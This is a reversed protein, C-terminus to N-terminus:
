GWTAAPGRGVPPAIVVPLGDRRVPGPVHSRTRAVTLLFNAHVPEQHKRKAEAGDGARFAIRSVSGKGTHLSAAVGRHSHILVRGGVDEFRKGVSAPDHQLPLDIIRLPHRRDPRVHRIDRGAKRASVEAQWSKDMRLRYRSRRDHGFSAGEDSIDRVGQGASAFDADPCRIGDRDFRNMLKERKLPLVVPRTGPM